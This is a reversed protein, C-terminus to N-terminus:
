VEFRWWRRTSDLYHGVNPGQYRVAQLPYLESLMHTLEWRALQSPRMKMVQSSIVLKKGGYGEGGEGQRTEDDVYEYVQAM